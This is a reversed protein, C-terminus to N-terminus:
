NRTRFSMYDGAVSIQEHFSSVSQFELTTYLECFALHAQENTDDLNFDHISPRMPHRTIKAGPVVFQGDGDWEDDSDSSDSNFLTEEDIADPLQDPSLSSEHLFEQLIAIEEDMYDQFAALEDGDGQPGHWPDSEDSLFALLRPFFRRATAVFAM